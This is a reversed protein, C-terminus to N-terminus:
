LKTCGYRLSNLLFVQSFISAGHVLVGGKLGARGQWCAGGDRGRPARLRAHDPGRADRTRGSGDDPWPGACHTQAHHRQAANQSPGHGECQGIHQVAGSQTLCAKWGKRLTVSGRELVGAVMDRLGGSVM